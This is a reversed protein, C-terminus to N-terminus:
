TRGMLSVATFAKQFNKEFNLNATVRVTREFNWEAEIHARHKFVYLVELPYNKKGRRRVIMKNGTRRSTTIFAREGATKVVKMGKRTKRQFSGDLLARPLLKAKFKGMSTKNFDTNLSDSPIAINQGRPIKDGGTEHLPMWGSIIPATYVASEALGFNRLDRINASQIRIGRPIFESHLKFVNRTVVRVAEACDQATRTLAWIYAMPVHQKELYTMGEMAKAIDIDLKIFAANGM